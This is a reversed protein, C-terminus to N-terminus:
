PGRTDFDHQEQSVKVIDGETPRLVIQGIYREEQMANFASEMDAMSYAAIPGVSGIKRQDVMASIKHFLGYLQDPRHDHMAWMDVSFFSICRGFSALSISNDQEIDRKGIEIFRGFRAVCRLTARLLPGTLCNLVVDVGRGATYAMIHDAFSADHSSLIHDPPVGYTESMFKRKEASGATVFVDAGTSQAMMIASQGVGESGSHILVTEKPQLHALEFLCHYATSHAMALSAGEEFSMWDSLHVVANAPAFVATSLCGATITCVRDGVRFGRATAELGVQTLVGSCEFGMREEHVQGLATMLDRSNLGYAVPKIRVFDEPLQEDPLSDEVFSLNEILGPATSALKLHKGEEAFPRLEPVQRSVSIALQNNQLFDEYIRPIQLIGSRVAFDHEPLRPDSSPKSLTAFLVRTIQHASESSWLCENPDLDLSVYQKWSKEYRLTRLMGHHLSTFPNPCDIQAGCSVWLVGSLRSLLFKLNEFEEATPNDLLPTELDGLFVAFTDPHLMDVNDLAHISM